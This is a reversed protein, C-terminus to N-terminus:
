GVRGTVGIPRPVGVDVRFVCIPKTLQDIFINTFPAGTTYGYTQSLGNLTLKKQTVFMLDTAPLKTAADVRRQDISSLRAGTKGTVYYYVVVTWSGAGVPKALPVNV